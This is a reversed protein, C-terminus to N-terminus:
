NQSPFLGFMSIIYNLGLYPAMNDHPTVGGASMGVLGTKMGGAAGSMLGYLKNGGTDGPLGTAANFAASAPASSVVPAHSHAPVQSLTLAVQEQGQQQGLVYTSSMHMPVRGRLDPLNFTEQGDGGYSTGILQYLTDYESIPLVRGDCLFWGIPAFTGAFLRIEGVFPQSM